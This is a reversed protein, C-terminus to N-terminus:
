LQLPATSTIIEASLLLKMFEIALTSLNADYQSDLENILHDPMPISENIITVPIRQWSIRHSGVFEKDGVSNSLVLVEKYM